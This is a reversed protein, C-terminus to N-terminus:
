TIQDEGEATLKKCTALITNETFKLADEVLTMDM